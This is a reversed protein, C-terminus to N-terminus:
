VEVIDLVPDVECLEHFSRFEMANEYCVNKTRHDFRTQANDVLWSVHAQLLSRRIDLALFDTPLWVNQHEIAQERVTIPSKLWPQQSWTLRNQRSRRSLMRVVM